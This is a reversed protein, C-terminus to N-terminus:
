AHLVDDSWFMMPNANNDMLSSWDKCMALPCVFSLGIWPVSSKASSYCITIWLSDFVIWFFKM